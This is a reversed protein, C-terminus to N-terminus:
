RICIRMSWYRSRCARTRGSSPASGAQPCATPASMTSSTAALRYATAVPHRGVREPEIAPADHQATGRFTGRATPCRPRRRLRRPASGHRMRSLERGHDSGGGGVQDPSDVGEMSEGSSWSDVPGSSGSGSVGVSVNPHAAGALNDVMDMAPRAGWTRGHQCAGARYTIILAPAM